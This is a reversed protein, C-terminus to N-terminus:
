FNPISDVVESDTRGSLEGAHQPNLIEEVPRQDNKVFSEEVANENQKILRAKELRDITAVLDFYLKPAYKFIFVLVVELTM